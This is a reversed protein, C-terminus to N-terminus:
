RLANPDQVWRLYWNGGIHINISGSIDCQNEPLPESKGNQQNIKDIRLTFTGRRAFIGRLRIRLIGGDTLPNTKINWDSRGAIAYYSVVKGAPNIVALFGRLPNFIRIATERLLLYFLLLAILSVVLLLIYSSGDLVLMAKGSIAQMSVSAGCLSEADELSWQYDGLGIGEVSAFLGNSDSQWPGAQITSGGRAPTFVLRPLVEPQTVPRGNEKLSAHVTVATPFFLLRRGTVLNMGASPGRMVSQVWRAIADAPSEIADLSFTYAHGQDVSLQTSVAPLEVPQGTAPHQTDAQLTLQLSGSKQPIGQWTYIGNADPDSVMASAFDDGGTKWSLPLCVKAASNTAQNWPQLQIQVPSLSAPPCSKDERDSRAEGFQFTLTDVNLDYDAEPAVLVDWRQNDDDLASAQVTLHNSGAWVPAFPAILAGQNMDHVFNVPQTQGKEPGSLSAQVSLRYREEKYNPLPNGSSDVLDIRLEGCGLQSWGENPTVLRAKVFMFDKTIFYQSSTATTTLEYRGPMPRQIELSQIGESTGTIRVGPRSEDVPKGEPDVLEIINDAEPKYFTFVVRDLYPPITNPGINTQTMGGNLSFNLLQDIRYGIEAKNNVKAARIPERADSRESDRTIKLWHKETKPWYTTNGQENLATVYLVDNKGTLTNHVSNNVMDMHDQLEKGELTHTIYPSGDTLLLVTRKPCDNTQEHDPENFLEEVKKMAATFNTGNGIEEYYALYDERDLRGSEAIGSRRTQWSAEDVPDIQVWDLGTIAQTAFQVVAMEVKIPRNLRSAVARANIYSRALVDAVHMPLFYRLKNPDNKVMSDSQDIVLVVQASNCTEEAATPTQPAPAPAAPQAQAKQVFFLQGLLCIGILLGFIRNLKMM